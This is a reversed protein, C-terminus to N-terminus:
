YVASLLKEPQRFVCIRGKPYARPSSKGYKANLLFIAHSSRFQDAATQDLEGYSLAYCFDHRPLRTRLHREANQRTAVTLPAPTKLRVTLSCDRWGCPQFDQALNSGLRAHPILLFNGIDGHQLASSETKPTCETQACVMHERCCDLSKLLGAPAASANCSNVDPM